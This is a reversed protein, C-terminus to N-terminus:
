LKETGNPSPRFVRPSECQSIGIGVDEFGSGSIQDLNSATRFAAPVAFRRFDIGQPFALFLNQFGVSAPDANMPDGLNEPFPVDIDRGLM